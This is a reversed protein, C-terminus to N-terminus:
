SSAKSSGHSDPRSLDGRSRKGGVGQMDSIDALARDEPESFLREASRHLLVLEERLLATRGEPLSQTLNELMARLRRNVQISTGGYQRIETVALHVFDEWEPTRYLLRLRGAADRV